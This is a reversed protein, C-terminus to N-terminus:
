IFSFLSGIASGFQSGAASYGTQLANGAAEGGSTGAQGVQGLATQGQQSVNGLQGLYNNFGTSALNTGFSTLAKAAAGSNLIGKTAASGTIADQGQQKEFNYGSSSLYNSFGNQTGATAPSLGLLQSEASNAAGGNDIYGTEQPSGSLYNFGTLDAKAGAKAGALSGAGGILGGIIDGM